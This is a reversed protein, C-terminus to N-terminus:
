KTCCLISRRSPSPTFSPARCSSTSPNRSHFFRLFRVHKYFVFTGFNVKVPNYSFPILPEPTDCLDLADSVVRFTDFSHKSAMGLRLVGDDRQHQFDIFHWSDTRNHRLNSGLIYLASRRSAHSGPLRFANIWERRGNFSLTLDCLRDASRLLATIHANASREVLDLLPIVSLSLRSPNSVAVVGLFVEPSLSASEGGTLCLSHSNLSICGSTQAQIVILQTDYPHSGGFELSSHRSFLLSENVLSSGVQFLWCPIRVIRTESHLSLSFLYVSEIFVTM